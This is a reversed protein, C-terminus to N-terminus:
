KLEKGCYPCFKAGAPVTKNCHDCKKLTEKHKIKKDKPQASDASVTPKEPKSKEAPKPAAGSKDLFTRIKTVVENISFNAKVLYDKAGLERARQIDDSQGLNSLVIVPISSLSPDDKMEELVDFGNMKPMVIDLLMLDPPTAKIKKLAEEGDTAVIVDFGEQTLKTMYVKRLFHDDEAVLIHFKNNAM